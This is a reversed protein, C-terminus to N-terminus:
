VQTKADVDDTWEAMYDSNRLDDYHRRFRSTTRRTWGGERKLGHSEHRIAAIYREEERRGRGHMEWSAFFVISIFKNKL